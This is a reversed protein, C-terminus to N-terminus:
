HATTRVATSVAVEIVDGAAGAAEMAYGLGLATATTADDARGAAATNVLAGAAVPGAAIMPFTGLSNWLKVPVEDGSVGGRM